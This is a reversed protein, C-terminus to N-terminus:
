GIVSHNLSFAALRSLFRLLPGEVTRKEIGRQTASGSDGCVKRNRSDEAANGRTAEFDM